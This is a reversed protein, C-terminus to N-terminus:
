SGARVRHRAGAVIDLIEQTTVERHISVLSRRTEASRKELWEQAAQTAALRNGHESTLADVLVEFLSIYIFERLVVARLHRLTVYRSAPIELSPGQSVVPLIRTSVPTFQGVGDFRASVVDLASFRDRLYGGLVEQVAMFLIRMIGAVSSPSPYIRTILIGSDELFHVQRRGICYVSRFQKEQNEAVALAGLRATYSGCLGRDTTISLLAPRPAATEPPSFHVTSVIKELIARYDRAAPLAARAYRFHHASLSKMASIAELLTQQSKLRRRLTKELKM